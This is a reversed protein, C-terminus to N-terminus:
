VPFLTADLADAINSWINNCSCLLLLKLSKETKHQSFLSNLSDKLSDILNSYENNKILLM